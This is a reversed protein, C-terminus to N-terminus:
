LSIGDKDINEHLPWHVIPGNNWYYNSEIILSIIVDYDLEIDYAIDRLEKKIDNIVGLVRLKKGGYLDIYYEELENGINGNILVLVDLDSYKHYDGRAKSGYLILETGPYKENIKKKLENLAKRENSALSAATKFLDKKM